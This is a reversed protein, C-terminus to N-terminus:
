ADLRPPNLFAIMTTIANMKMATSSAPTGTNMASAPEDNLDQPVLKGEFARKPACLELDQKADGRLNGPDIMSMTQGSGAGAAGFKKAFRSAFANMKQSLELAGIRHRRPTQNGIESKM